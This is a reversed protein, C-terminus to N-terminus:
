LLKLTYVRLEGVCRTRDSVRCLNAALARTVNAARREAAQLSAVPGRLEGGCRDRELASRDVAAEFKTTSALVATVQVSPVM